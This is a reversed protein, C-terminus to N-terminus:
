WVNRDDNPASIGNVVATRGDEDAFYFRNCVSSFKVTITRGRLGWIATRALRLDIWAETRAVQPMGHSWDFFVVRHVEGHKIAMEIQGSGYRSIKTMILPIDRKIGRKLERLLDAFNARNVDFLTFTADPEYVKYVDPFKLAEHPVANDEPFLAILGNKNALCSLDAVSIPIHILLYGNSSWTGNADCMAFSLSPRFKREGKSIAGKRLFALAEDQEFNLNVSTQM